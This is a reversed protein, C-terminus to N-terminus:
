REEKTKCCHVDWIGFMFHTVMMMIFVPIGLVGGIRMSLSICYSSDCQIGRGSAPGRAPGVVFSIDVLVGFEVETWTLSKISATREQSRKSKSSSKGWPSSIKGGRERQKEQALMMTVDEVTTLPDIWSCDHVHNLPWPLISLSPASPNVGYRGLAKGGRM